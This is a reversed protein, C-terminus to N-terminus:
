AIWLGIVFSLFFSLVNMRQRRGLIKGRKSVWGEVRETENSFGVVWVVGSALILGFRSLGMLELDGRRRPGIHADSPM